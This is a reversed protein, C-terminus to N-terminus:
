DCNQAIREQAEARRRQFEEETMRASSGGADTTALRRPTRADLYALREIAQKCNEQRQAQRAAAQEAAQQQAGGGKISDQLSQNLADQNPSAAPPPPAGIVEYPGKKPPVESFHVQGREDKWKYTQAAAALPLAALLLTLLVRKM